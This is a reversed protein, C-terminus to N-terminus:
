CGHVAVRMEFELRDFECVRRTDQALKRLDEYAERTATAREEALQKVAMALLRAVSTINPKLSCELLGRGM